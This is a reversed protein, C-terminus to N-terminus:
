GDGPGQRQRQRQRAAGGAGASGACMASIDPRLVCCCMVIGRDQRLTQSPDVLHQGLVLDGMEPGRGNGNGNGNGNGHQGALAQLDQVCPVSTLGSCVAACSSKLAERLTYRSDVLRQGLVPDGMEPGRGNSNGNGNQGALAQLDQVCPLWTLGCRGPLMHFEHGCGTVSIAVPHPACTVVLCSAIGPSGGRQHPPMQQIM